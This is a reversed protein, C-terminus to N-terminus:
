ILLQAAIMVRDEETLPVHIQSLLATLIKRRNLQGSTNFMRCVVVTNEVTHNQSNDLRELSFHRWNDRDRSFSIGTYFCRCKQEIIKLFIQEVTLCEGATGPDRKSEKDHRLHNSRKIHLLSRLHNLSKQQEYLLNKKSKMEVYITRPATVGNEKPTNSWWKQFESVLETTDTPERLESLFEQFCEIWAGLLDEIANRQSVNFEYCIKTCHETFHEQTPGNNQISARWDANPIEVPEINSISCHKSLGIYWNLSLNKYNHLLRRVYAYPTSNVKKMRNAACINCGTRMNEHGSKQLMNDSRHDSNYYAPTMPKEKFCINCTEVVLIQGDVLIARRNKAVNHKSKIRFIQGVVLTGDEYSKQWKEKYQLDEKDLRAQTINKQGFAAPPSRKRKKSDSMKTENM